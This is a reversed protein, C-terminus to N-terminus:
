HTALRSPTWAIQSQLRIRKVVLSGMKKKKKKLTM